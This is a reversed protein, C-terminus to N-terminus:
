SRPAAPGRMAVWGPRHRSVQRAMGGFGTNLVLCARQVSVVAHRRACCVGRVFHRGSRVFVMRTCPRGKRVIVAPSDKLFTVTCTAIPAYTPQPVNREPKPDAKIMPAEVLPVPGGVPGAWRPCTVVSKYIGHKTVQTIPGPAAAAPSVLSLALGAASALLALIRGM